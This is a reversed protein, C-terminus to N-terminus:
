SIEVSIFNDWRFSRWENKDTCFVSAVAPNPKRTSETTTTRVPLLEPKLTCPMKREEGNVKTFTVTYVGTHLLEVVAAKQDETM